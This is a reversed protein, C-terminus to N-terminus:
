LAAKGAGYRPRELVVIPRGAVSADSQNGYDNKRAVNQSIAHAPDFICVTKQAELNQDAWALAAAVTETAIGRGKAAGNLVWGAEPSGAHSPVIDRKFDAIGVEGLFGGTERDQVVWFGYGLAQWHGIYRLVRTWSEQRTSAVGSIYRVVEVDAWMRASDEFDGVRPGRMITRATTLIPVADTAIM